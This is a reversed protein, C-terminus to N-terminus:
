ASEVASQMSSQSRCQRERSQLGLYVILSGTGPIQTIHVMRQETAAVQLNVHQASAAVRTALNARFMRWIKLVAEMTSPTCTSEEMTERAEGDAGSSKFAQRLISLLPDPLFPVMQRLALFGIRGNQVERFPYGLATDNMQDEVPPM